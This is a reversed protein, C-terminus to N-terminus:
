AIAIGASNRRMLALFMQGYVSGSLGPYDASAGSTGTAAYSISIQGIRESSVVQGGTGSTTEAVYLFHAALYFTGGVVDAEAWTEDVFLGAEDLATQLIADDFEAMGPFMSKFAVVNIPNSTDVVTMTGITPTSRRNSPDIIVIDYFYNGDLDISDDSTLLVTFTYSAADEIVIGGDALTKSIVGMNKDPVGRVQPYATWTMQALTIDFPPEPAPTLGYDVDTDDGAILSFNQRIETM